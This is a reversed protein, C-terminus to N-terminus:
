AAWLVLAVATLAVGVLVWYALVEIHADDRLHTTATLARMRDKARVTDMLFANITDRASMRM